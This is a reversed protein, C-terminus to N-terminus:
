GEKTAWGYCKGASCYGYGGGASTPTQSVQPTPQRYPFTSNATSQGFFDVTVLGTGAILCLALGCQLVCAGVAGMRGAIFACTLLALCVVGGVILTEIGQHRAFGGSPTSFTAQDGISWEVLFGAVALVLDIILITATTLTRSRALRVAALNALRAQGAAHEPPIADQPGEPEQTQTEFIEFM